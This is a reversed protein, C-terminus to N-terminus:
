SARRAESTIAREHRAYSSTAISSKRFVWERSTSFDFLLMKAPAYSNSSPLRSARRAESTIARERRAYRSTFNASASIGTRPVDLFRFIFDELAHPVSALVTSAFFPTCCEQRARERHCRLLRLGNWFRIEVRSPALIRNDLGHARRPASNWHM